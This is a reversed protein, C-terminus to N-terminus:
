PVKRALARTGLQFLVKEERGAPIRATLLLFPLGPFNMDPLSVSILEFPDQFFCFTTRSWFFPYHFTCLSFHLALFSSVQTLMGTWVARTGSCIGTNQNGAALLVCLNPGKWIFNFQFTHEAQEGCSWALLQGFCCRRFHACPPNWGGAAHWSRDDESRGRQAASM